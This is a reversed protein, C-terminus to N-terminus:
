AALRHAPAEAIDMLPVPPAERWTKALRTFALVWTGLLLILSAELM